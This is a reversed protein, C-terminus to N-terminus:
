RRAAWGTGGILAAPGPDISRAEPHLERRAMAHHARAADASFPRLPHGARMWPTQLGRHVHDSAIPDVRDDPAVVREAVAFGEADLVRTAVKRGGRHGKGTSTKAVTRLMADAGPRDAIAVLKYVLEGTPAGSGTVLRTGILYRDVPAAALEAMRYEDLDGSVVIQCGTAGLADLQARARHVEAALDGSDIRVAGIDPGAAAVARRIGETTDYTDVLFTSEVGLAAVQAAFAAEESVHALTFAHMTTGATPLGFRRGAELNSTVDIGAIYAALAAAVAAEEHTRRGGGEITTAGGAVEAMRAGAAAVASDHNLISLLVTELVLAEGFDAEVTLVPSHPFYVEGDHYGDLDGGFRYNALWDLTEPRLFARERLFALEGDGFRFRTVADVARAMGAVVGYRRGSPLHRAFLEFTARHHAVGSALAADLGTLEYHDTLLASSPAAGPGASTWLTM